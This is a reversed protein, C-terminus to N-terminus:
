TDEPVQGTSGQNSGGCERALTEQAAFRSDNRWACSLLMAFSLKDGPSLRGPILRLNPLQTFGRVKECRM